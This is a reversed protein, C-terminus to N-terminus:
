KDNKAITKKISKRLGKERFKANKEKSTIDKALSFSRVRLFLKMANELVNKKLECSCDLGDSILSYLSVVDSDSMLNLVMKDIDINRLNTVSTARRFEEETKFFIQYATNNIQKLGGRSLTSILINSPMDNLTNKLIEVTSNAIEENRSNKKNKPFQVKKLLKHIVYGGLYYLGDIEKELIPTAVIHVSPKETMKKFLDECLNLLVSSSTISDNSSFFISSKAVLNGYFTGFYKEASKNRIFNNCIPLITKLLYEVEEMNYTFSEIDESLCTDQSATTVSKKLMNDLISCDM